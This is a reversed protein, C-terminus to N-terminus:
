ESSLLIVLESHNKNKLIAMSKQYQLQNKINNDIKSCLNSFNSFDKYSM